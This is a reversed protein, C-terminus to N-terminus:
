KKKKVNKVQITKKAPPVTQKELVVYGLEFRLRQGENRV